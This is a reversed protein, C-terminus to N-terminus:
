ESGKKFQEFRQQAESEKEGGFAHTSEFWLVNILGVALALGVGLIWTFYWMTKWEKYRLSRLNFI